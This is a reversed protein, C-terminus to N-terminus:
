PGRPSPKGHRNARRWEWPPVPAPEAWLGKRQSRAENQLGYLSKDVVYKDYVWAMGRRLQEENADTGDLRLRGLTRGYRDKGHEVVLVSTPTAGTGHVPM